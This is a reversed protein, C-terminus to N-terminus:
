STLSHFFQRFSANKLLEILNQSHSYQIKGFPNVWSKQAFNYLRKNIPKKGSRTYFIKKRYQFASFIDFLCKKFRDIKPTAMNSEELPTLEPNRPM